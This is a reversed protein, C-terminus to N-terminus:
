GLGQLVRGDWRYEYQAIGRQNPDRLAEYIALSPVTSHDGWLRESTIVFDLDLQVLLGFLLPHTRVDIKPFADDLLVIRPAHPAAGALSTFHAAAAAFLPLYCLVKQEGQSLPSRRHLRDWHGPKEPRTYRISFESWTRYDLAAALHEGYSLEPREARSAEILRHLVDRLKEREEPILAGVPQALLEVAARAEQPVDDRLKWDLRVRIGQSTTVHGLQDNMAEVLERADRRCKRIADGLEGLVHQEFQQKERDTLLGRDREVAAAVRRALDVIAAEGAEDRGTVALLDGYEAVVPQHDGASGSAADAHTRWVRTNTATVEEASIGALRGVSAREDRGVPETAPHSGIAAIVGADTHDAGAADLMGPVATVAALSAFVVARSDLHEELRRQANRLSENAEGEGRIFDKLHDVARQEAAKGEALASKVVAVKRQLQEVSDGISASLAEFEARSTAAATEAEVRAAGEAALRGRADFLEGVTEAWREITARLPSISRGAERLAEALGRLEQEVADLRSAESPLDHEAAVRDLGSGAEATAVRAAHASEQASRNDAGEKTEIELRTELQSRLRILMQGSPVRAVWAQLEAIASDLAARERHAGEATREQEEIATDLVALRRVREQARATAGIFQAREKRARGHAPGLRWSGDVGIWATSSVDDGTGISALVRRVDDADVGSDAPVDPVLYEALTHAGAQERAAALVVDLHDPGLLRGGPRIWADLLGSAQLAAEIRAGPDGGIGDAFDIVQWLALGDTRATRPLAPEPPAPDREAEVAAREETLRKVEATAREHRAMSRARDEHMVSLRPEAAAQAYVPLAAVFDDSLGEPVDVGPAEATTAWATLSATLRLQEQAAAQEAAVRAGRADEWRTEAATAEREAQTQRSRARGLEQLAARVVAIAAIRRTVASTAAPLGVADQDLTSEIAPRRSVDDATGIELTRPAPIGSDPVARRLRLSLDRLRAERESLGHRVADHRRQALGQIREVEAGQREHRATAEDALQSDRKAKDDLEGLRRQDRFEPSEELTRLRAANAAIESKAREQAEETERRQTRARELGTSASTVETRIGREHRLADVVVRAREAVVARAYGTYAGALTGLADAAASRREIQEGFATLEDFTDGAARVAQEDLQPLAQSLQQALKAPEIDEGIQPQRLWYLLRLVEDYQAADLGFLTRGIHAKYDASREYVREEGLVEKLRPMSLPGADDELSLDTGIRQDTAFHWATASRASASARIGVGCTYTELAGDSRSRQFEVWVYGVRNGGELGDTMLWLLSTHHRASTTIRAKDGDLAFPLLMELTKSKGAGNAGRLLLRGDAFNFVQEDYQWVNLVGARHLRFRGDSRISPIRAPALAAVTM